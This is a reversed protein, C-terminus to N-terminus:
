TESGSTIVLLICENHVKMEVETTHKHKAYHLGAQWFCNLWPRNQIEVRTRSWPRKCQRDSTSTATSKKLRGEMSASTRKNVASNFMVITKGLHMNLGVPKRTEHIDQLMNQLESTLETILVIHDTFVLHSLCEDDIKIGRTKGTSRALSLM